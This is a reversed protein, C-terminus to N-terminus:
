NGAAFEPALFSKEKIMDKDVPKVQKSESAGQEPVLLTLRGHGKLVGVAIDIRIYYTQGLKLDLDVQSQKDNSRFAHNGPALALIVGRGSQLRAVDKEDIYISPRLAKGEFAKYRYVYVRVKSDSSSAVAVAQQAPLPSSALVLLVGFAPKLNSMSGTEEASTPMEM